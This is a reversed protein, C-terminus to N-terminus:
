ADDDRASRKSVGAQYFYGAYYCADWLMRMAQQKRRVLSLAGGKIAKEVFDRLMWLPIAPERSSATESGYNTRQNWDNRGFRFGRRLIWQESFQDARIIHHVRAAPCFCAKRGNACVRLNFETESGMIYLSGRSSPGIHEAFRFGVDFVRRRVMMNPGWVLGPFVDGEALREDTLAFVVGRPVSTAIWPPPEAEWFPLIAGGFIEHDPYRDAAAEFAILWDRGVLVDDDTFVILEGEVACLARNLARNKGPRQEEIVTLPLTRQSEHLIDPTADTSANDVALISFGSAPPILGRLSELMRPLTDSGNHSSFVVTIM